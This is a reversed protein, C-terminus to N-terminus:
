YEGPGTPWAVSHPPTENEPSSILTYHAVGHHATGTGDIASRRITEIVYGLQRLEQIRAGPHPIGFCDRADFTSVVGRGLERILRDRQSASYPSTDFPTEDAPLEDPFLDFNNGRSM